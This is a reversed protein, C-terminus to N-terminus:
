SAAKEQGDFRSSLALVSVVVQALKCTQLFEVM